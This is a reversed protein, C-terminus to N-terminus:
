KGRGLRGASGVHFPRLSSRRHLIILGLRASNKSYHTEEEQRTRLAAPLDLDHLPRDIDHVPSHHDVLHVARGSQVMRRVAVETDAFSRRCFVLLPLPKNRQM